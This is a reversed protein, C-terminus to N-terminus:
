VAIYDSLEFNAGSTLFSQASLRGSIVFFQNEDVSFSFKVDFLKYAKILAPSLARGLRM